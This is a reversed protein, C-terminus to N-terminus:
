LKLILDTIKGDDHPEIGVIGYPISNITITDGHHLNEVDTSKACFTIQRGEVGIDMQLFERDFIGSIIDGNQLEGDIAFEKFFVELNEQTM